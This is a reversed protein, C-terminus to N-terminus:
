LKRVTRVDEFREFIKSGSLREIEKIIMPGRLNLFAKFGKTADTEWVPSKINYPIIHSKMVSGFHKHNKYEKLYLRPPKKSISQNEDSELYCINLISNILGDKIRNNELLKKPFIHHKDKRNSVSSPDDLLMEHGNILYKPKKIRLLIFYAKNSSSHTTNYRTHLFSKTNIKDSITYRRNERALGNFFQIDKPINRNFGAGSYREGCSTHWFWKKVERIQHTSARKENLYFFYSLMSFINNSPLQNLSSVKLTNVLFDVAEEYGYQIKKWRKEFDRNNSKKHEIASLFSSFAKDGIKTAGYVLGLTNQLSEVSVRDFGYKLGRQANLMLDRLRVDSAKAFLTDARSVKMGGSNIRIFIERITANQVKQVVIFHFKYSHFLRFCRATQASESRNLKYQNKIKSPTSKLIDHLPIGKSQDTVRRASYYFKTVSNKDFSFYISRYDIKSNAEPKPETGFLVGFLTSLRQQGDIILDCTKARTNFPPLITKTNPRLNIANSYKTTWLLGIGIPYDKFISDLLKCVRTKDWVFQRQIEPIAFERNEFKNRLKRLNLTLIRNKGM